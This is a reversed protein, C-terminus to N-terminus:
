LKIEENAEHKNFIFNVAEVVNECIMKAQIEESNEKCVGTKVLISFWNEGQANAGKIDSELNDGIMYISDLKTNYKEAYESLVKKAYSYTFDTPKGAIKYNLKKKYIIEYLHAVTERYSGETIRPNKYLAGYVSLILFYDFFCTQIQL